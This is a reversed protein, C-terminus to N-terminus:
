LLRTDYLWALSWIQAQIQLVITPMVEERSVRSTLFDVVIGSLRVIHQLLGWVRRTSLIILFWTVRVFYDFQLLIELTWYFSPRTRCIFLIFAIHIVQEVKLVTAVIRLDRLRLALPLTWAAIPFQSDFSLFDSKIFRWFVSNSKLAKLTTSSGYSIGWHVLFFSLWINRHRTIEALVVYLVLIRTLLLWCGFLLERLLQLQSFM